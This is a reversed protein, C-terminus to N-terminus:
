RKYQRRVPLAPRGLPPPIAFRSGWFANVYGARKLAKDLAARNDDPKLFDPRELHWEWVNDGNVALVSASHNSQHRAYLDLTKYYGLPILGGTRLLYRRDPYFDTRWQFMLRGANLGLALGSVACGEGLLYVGPCVLLFRSWEADIHRQLEPAHSRSILRGGFRAAIADKISQVFGKIQSFDQQQRQQNM